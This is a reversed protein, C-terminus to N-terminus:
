RTFSISKRAHKNEREKEREREWERERERETHTHLSDPLVLQLLNLVASRRVFDAQKVLVPFFTKNKCLLRVLRTLALLDVTCLRRRWNTNGSVIIEKTFPWFFVTEIPLMVCNWIQIIAPNLQLWFLYFIVSSKTCNTESSIFM